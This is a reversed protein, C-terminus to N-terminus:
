YKGSTYPTINTGFYFWVHLFTKFAFIYLCVLIYKKFSFNKFSFGIKKKIALLSIYKFLAFFCKSHLNILDAILFYINSLKKSTSFYIKAKIENNQLQFLLRQKSNGGRSKSETQTQKPRM